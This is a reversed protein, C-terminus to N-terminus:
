PAAEAGRRDLARQALRHDHRAAGGAHVGRRRRRSEPRRHRAPSSTARSCSPTSGRTRLRRRGQPHADHACGLAPQSRGRRRRGPARSRRGPGPDPLAGHLRSRLRRRALARAIVKAGRDHGDLGPKAISATADSCEGGGPAPGPAPGARPSITLTTSDSPPTVNAVPGPGALPIPTGSSGLRLPSMLTMTPAVTPTSSGPRDMKARCIHVVGAASADLAAALEVDAEGAVHPVREVGAGVELGAAPPTARPRAELRCCRRRCPPAARPNCRAAGARGSPTRRCSWERRGAACYGTLMLVTLPSSATITLRPVGAGDLLVEAVVLM